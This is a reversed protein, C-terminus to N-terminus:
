DYIEGELKDQYVENYPQAEIARIREQEEKDLVPQLNLFNNM